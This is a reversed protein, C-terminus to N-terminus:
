IEECVQYCSGVNLDYSSYDISIKLYDFNFDKNSLDVLLDHVDSYETGRFAAERYVLALMLKKFEKSQQSKAQLLLAKIELQTASSSDELVWIDNLNKIENESFQIDRFDVQELKEGVVVM